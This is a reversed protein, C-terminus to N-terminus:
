GLYRGVYWERCLGSPYRPLAVCCSLLLYEISTQLEESSRHGPSDSVSARPAHFGVVWLKGTDPVHHSSSLAQTTVKRVDLSETVFQGCNVVRQGMGLYGPLVPAGCFCFPSLPLPSEHRIWMQPFPSALRISIM